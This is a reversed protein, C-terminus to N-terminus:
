AKELFEVLLRVGFGTASKQKSFESDGFAVGAIDM